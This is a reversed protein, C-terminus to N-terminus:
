EFDIDGTNLFLAVEVFVLFIGGMATLAHWYSYCWVTRSVEICHGHACLFYHGVTSYGNLADGGLYVSVAFFVMFNIGALISTPYIVWKARKSYSRFKLSTKV